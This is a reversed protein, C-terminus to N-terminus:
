GAHGAGQKAYRSPVDIAAGWTAPTAARARLRLSGPVYEGDASRLWMRALPRANGLVAPRVAVPRTTLAYRALSTTAGTAAAGSRNVRRGPDRIPVDVPVARTRQGAAVSSRVPTM